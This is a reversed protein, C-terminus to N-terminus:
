LETRGRKVRLISSSGRIAGDSSLSELSSCNTHGMQEGTLEFAGDDFGFALTKVLYRKSDAAVVIPATAIQHM